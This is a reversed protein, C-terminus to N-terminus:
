EPRVRRLEKLILISAAPDTRSPAREEVIHWLRRAETLEEALGAGKPFLGLGGPALHREALTLLRPLPALARASVVDARLPAAQEIRRNVLALRVGMARAADAMFACKRADSEVAVVELDPSAEAALAAIVLAPLGAGAGLDAWRRAHAPAFPYLQACDVVHRTWVEDLTTRSVLNLAGSWKRLHAVYRTLREATERSVGLAACVEAETM